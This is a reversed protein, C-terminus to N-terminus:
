RCQSVCSYFYGIGSMGGGWDGSFLQGPWAFFSIGGRHIFGTRVGYFAHVMQPQYGRHHIFPPQDLTNVRHHRLIEILACHGPSNGEEPPTGSPRPPKLEGGRSPHGFPPTTKIGRRQLPARLAPHDNPPIHRHNRDFPAICVYWWGTLSRRGGRRLLPIKPPANGEEPTTGSPRPPRQPSYRSSESSIVNDIAALTFRQHDLYRHLM